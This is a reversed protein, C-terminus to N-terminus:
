IWQGILGAQCIIVVGLAPARCGVILEIPAEIPPLAILISDERPHRVANTLVIRWCTKEAISAIVGCGVVVAAKLYDYIIGERGIGRPYNVGVNSNSM